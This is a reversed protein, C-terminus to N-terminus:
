CWQMTPKSNSHKAVSSFDTFRTFSRSRSYFYGSVLQATLFKTLFPDTVSTYGAWLIQKEPSCCHNQKPRRKEFCFIVLYALVTPSAHDWAGRAVGIAL